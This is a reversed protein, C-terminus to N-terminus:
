AASRQGDAYLHCAVSRTASPQSLTPQTVRCAALANACRPHFACGSPRDAPNPPDGQLVIRDASRRGPAPSASVLARTYPHLPASFLDDASGTEVIQGLYMVAVRHSVQRVVRLDHSIFLMTLGLRDQLDCLLNVVQAQISVDLASVPEDCVLFEPRTALARALVARQRQGGSLEGPYRRGHEASLDVSRLLELARQDRESREGIDHIDLPERVQDLITLRKDLAGLPDQYIMQVRARQTRWVQTGMSPMPADAFRVEGNDAQELGLVLRGTTSKGSGSEGVLGLTEGKAIELSVDDVARVHSVRGFIGRRSAYVKRLARAQVLPGTM